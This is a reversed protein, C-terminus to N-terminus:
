MTQQMCVCAIDLVLFMGMNERRTSHWFWSSAESAERFRIVLVQPFVHSTFLDQYWPRQSQSTYYSRHSLCPQQIGMDAIRMGLCKTVKSIARLCLLFMLQQHKDMDSLRLRIFKSVTLLFLSVSDSVPEISPKTADEMASFYAVIGPHQSMCSRSKNISPM